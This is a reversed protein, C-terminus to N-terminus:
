VFLRSNIGFVYQRDKLLNPGFSEISVGILFCCLGFALVLLWLGFAMKTMNVADHKEYRVFAGCVYTISEM